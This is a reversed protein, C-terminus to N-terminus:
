NQHIKYVKHPNNVHGLDIERFYLWDGAVGIQAVKHDSLKSKETGDTRIKYLRYEDEQNAYFIWDSGINVSDVKIKTDTKNSGDIRIKYLHRKDNVDSTYYVWDDVVQMNSSKENNLKTKITGDTKIKYLCEGDADNRYYIWDDYVIPKGVGDAM